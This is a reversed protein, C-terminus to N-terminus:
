FETKIGGTLTVGGRFWGWCVPRLVEFIQFKSGFNLRLKAGGGSKESFCDGGKGGLMSRRNHNELM